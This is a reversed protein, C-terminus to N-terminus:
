AVAETSDSYWNILTQHTVQVVGDTLAYIEAALSGWSTGPRRDAIWEPLTTGAIQEFRMEDLQRKPSHEM